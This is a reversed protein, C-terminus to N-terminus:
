YANPHVIVAVTGFLITVDRWMRWGNVYELDAQLRYELDDVRHTAGRYGRIQALGTIGPKLAHRLWYNENVEWFLKDGALSGLAHPRPGVLSMEGRLVNLLQPLEDISTRRIFRGIRTIREDDRSTSCQGSADSRDMRMSRFKLIEFMANGRGVRVQRFFVPGPSDLRILIAVLLLLPGLVILIPVTIALDLARKKARSTISLPGRSIQVTDAGEFNGFGIAGLQNGEAIVIEGSLNAGKLLLSWARQREPPAAVVVRDFNRLLTALRSLMRPNSLDPEIAEARADIVYRCKSRPFPVGDVILVEDTFAGEARVKAYACFVSRGAFLLGASLAMGGAFSFRSVDVGVGAFFLLMVLVLMTVFLAGLAARLSDPRSRLMQIGYANRNFAVILYIPLAVLLLNIGEPSIWEVGRFHSAITFAIVLALSDLVVLEAYLQLRLSQKSRLVKSQTLPAAPNLM